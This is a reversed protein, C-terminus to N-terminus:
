TKGSFKPRNKAFGIEAPEFLLFSLKEYFCFAISTNNGKYKLAITRTQVHTEARRNRLINRRIFVLTLIPHFIMTDLCLRRGVGLKACSHRALLFAFCKRRGCIIGSNLNTYYTHFSGKYRGPRIFVNQKM